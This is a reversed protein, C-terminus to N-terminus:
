DTFHLMLPSDSIEWQGKAVNEGTGSHFLLYSYKSYHRLKRLMRELGQPTSADLLVIDQEGARLGLALTHVGCLYNVSNLTYAAETMRFPEGARALLGELAANDGGLLIVTGTDPLPEDDYQVKVPQGRQRLSDLWDQWALQMTEETDRALVYTKAGAGYLAGVSAPLEAADPLRFLDFDPDVALQQPKGALPLTFTQEPQQMHLTERQAAQQSDAFRIHVPVSLPFAAGDQQQALTLRLQYGSADQQLQHDTIKLLPAGKGKVWREQFNKDAGLANLLNSFTASRFRYQQYFQRLGAFFKEDGLQQRLMHFLMLSKSYGVAATADNHRSRFAALPFDEHQGVFTAYKQLASRRYEAGEGKLMKQRHDALYATLGESWNGESADIYVGNGWWNHLIEHPFSTHVIFPLRIVRPGLLTFSPMGWGTEWFSEVTAFKAYPYEGLLESYEELYRHTAQLYRQALAEDPQRLYVLADAQGGAQQYVHFQGALLYISDQPQTERWGDATAAGQSLSVWDPPLKVQMEFTHLAGPPQPYWRSGGDLYLGSEDLLVCAQTLWECDPTSAFQGIYKLTIEQQGAALPISYVTIDGQTQQESVATSAPPLLEFHEGLAFVFPRGAAAPEPLRIRDEVQLTHSAPDPTILLTHHLVPPKDALAAVPSLMCILIFVHKLIRM